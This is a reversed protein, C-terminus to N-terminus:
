SPAGHAAPVATVAPRLRDVLAPWDVFVIVLTLWQASYDLGMALRIGIHMAVAGPVFLRRLRPVFLVLPFCTELLLSGAAFLHALVPRDAIFLAIDNPHPQDYLISRLNDSTVWAIGSYRWKQFGAFFYALAIVIMASRIAWGYREGRRAAPDAGAGGFARRLPGRITWAEGAADACAVLLLMCLLLLADRVLVRGTDNAMGNLFLSCGVAVPLSLRLALGAAAILAAAMGAVQLATATEASPLRQVLDMYFHPRFDAGRTAIAGVDVTALRLALVGCLGIRIAALRRADEPAFIWGDVRGLARRVRSM